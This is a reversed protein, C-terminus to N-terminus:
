VFLTVKLVKKKIMNSKKTEKQIAIKERMRLKYFM